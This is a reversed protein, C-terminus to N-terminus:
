LFELSMVTRDCGEAEVKRGIFEVVASDELRLAKFLSDEAAKFFNTLDPRVYLHRKSKTKGHWTARLVNIELKIPYGSLSSLDHTGFRTHAAKQVLSQVRVDWLIASKVKYGGKKSFRYTHNVTPPHGEIEIKFTKGRFEEIM